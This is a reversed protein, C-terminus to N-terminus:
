PILQIRRRSVGSIVPFYESFNKFYAVSYVFVEYFDFDFYIDFYLSDPHGM